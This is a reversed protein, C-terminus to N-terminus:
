WVLQGTLHQHPWGPGRAQCRGLPVRLAGSGGVLCGSREAFAGGPSEETGVWRPYCSVSGLPLELASGGRGNLARRCATDRPLLESAHAASPCTPVPARGAMWAALSGGGFPWCTAQGRARQASSGQPPSCPGPFTRLGQGFLSCYICGM